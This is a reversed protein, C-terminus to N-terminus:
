RVKIIRVRFKQWTEKPPFLGRELFTGTQSQRQRRAALIVANTFFLKGEKTEEKAAAGDNGDRRIRRRRGHQAGLKIRKEAAADAAFIRVEIRKVSGWLAGYRLLSIM